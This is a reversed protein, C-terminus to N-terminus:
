VGRELRYRSEEGPAYLIGNVHAKATNADLGAGATSVTIGQESLRAMEQSVLGRDDQPLWIPMQRSYIAPHLYAQEQLRRLEPDVGVDSRISLTEERGDTHAFSRGSHDVVSPRGISPHLSQHHSYSVSDVVSPNPTPVAPLQSSVEAVEDYEQKGGSMAGVKAGHLGSVMTIPAKESLGAEEDQIAKPHEKERLVGDKDMKLDKSFLAVPLYTVLPNFAENLNVYSIATAVILLLLIVLHAITNVGDAIKLLFIGFVTIEFIFLGTYAQKVAIPFALGGTEVPQQYVYLFQHRYVFYYSVFYFAVFPLVLPALTSYLIGVSFMLTQPPFLVGFNVSSIRGQVNWIQRPSKALLKTFLFNLILPAIQLLEKMPGVFGQLLAYTVFFTSAAPLKQALIGIIKIIDVNKDIGGFTKLVGGAFTSVLLVNIVLFMFYKKMVALTITSHRVHGEFTSLFTLIMPLVAMLIALFVPPLIGQIIGTFWEPMDLLFSLFPLKATLAGISSIGAVFFVPIFWFIALATAATMSIITRVKRSVTSLNLNDWVVDLPSIEVFMPAMRFPTPHVVTQVASHAAFQTNFQIFASNLNTSTDTKQLQEIEQNLEHLRKTYFDILDVKPGYFPIMSTRGIPRQAEKVDTEGKKNKTDYASRIYNYEANELKVTVQDREECLKTLKKPNKNIWISRIGGPFHKFIDYLADETDLGHPIGTVLITTSQPTKAHKESLLYVHRRRTYEVMEKWLMYVTACSFIITLALHFWLRWSQAVNGVTMAMLGEKKVGNVINLPILIPISILTFGSFLIASMRLFRTFMYADLGIREVLDSDQVKFSATVWSFIGDPLETSRIDENVLYTRPQYIRKSWHRVICFAVFIGAAVAANFLLATTFTSIQSDTELQESGYDTSDKDM